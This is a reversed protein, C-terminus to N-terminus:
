FRGAIDLGVWDSGVVRPKLVIPARSGGGLASNTPILRLAMSPAGPIALDQTIVLQALVPQYGCSSTIPCSKAPKKAQDPVAEPETAPESDDVPAPAAAQQGLEPGDREPTISGNMAAVVSPQIVVPAIESQPTSEPKEALAPASIAVIALPLLFRSILMRVKLMCLGLAARLKWSVFIM